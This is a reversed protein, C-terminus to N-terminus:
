PKTVKDWKMSKDVLLSAGGEFQVLAKAPVARRGVVHLHAGEHLSLVEGKMGPSVLAPGGEPKIEDGQWIIQDGVILNLSDEALYM